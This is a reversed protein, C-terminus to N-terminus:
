VATPRLQLAAGATAVFGPFRGRSMELIGDPRLQDGSRADPERRSRLGEGAAGDPRNSLRVVGREKEERRRYGALGSRPSPAAQM